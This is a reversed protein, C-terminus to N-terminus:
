KALVTKYIPLVSEALFKCYNNIGNLNNEKKNMGTIKSKLRLPALVAHSIQQTNVNEYNAYCSALVGDVVINGFYTVPAYIGRLETMTISTVTKIDTKNESVLYLRDGVSIEQATVIDSFSESNARYLMHQQTLRLCEGSELHIELFQAIRDEERHLFGYVRVYSSKKNKFALVEDGVQLDKMKKIQGNKLQVISDPSFCCCIGM